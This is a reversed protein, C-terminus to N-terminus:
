VRYPCVRLHAGVALIEKFGLLHIKKSEVIEGALVNQLQQLTERRTWHNGIEEARQWHVWEVKEQPVAPLWKESEVRSSREIL